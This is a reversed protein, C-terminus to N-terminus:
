WPEIKGLKWWNELLLSHSTVEAQQENKPATNMQYHPYATRSGLSHSWAAEGGAGLFQPLVRLGRGKDQQSGWKEGGWAAPIASPAQWGKIATELLCMHHHMYCYCCCTAITGCVAMHPSDLPETRRQRSCSHPSCELINIPWLSLIATLARLREFLAEAECAATALFLKKLM